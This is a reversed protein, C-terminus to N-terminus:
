PRPLGLGREAIINRQIESTGAAITYPVSRLYTHPIEGGLRAGPGLRQGVLGALNVAFRYVDQMVESGFVKSMSAEHNPILNASQMWTVRYSLWRAIEASIQLDAFRNRNRAEGFCEPIEEMAWAGIRKLGRRVTAGMGVGSREFDLLTTAIYWGRNEEGLMQDAPVRVDEFYVENFNHNGAMDILPRVEIGPTKMDVLFYSIGRHKPAEPNTRTLVHIWDAHHARSTWIKQGNIMFDDGDRVARTQLSALDSGSGPESFGQAWYVEAKAIPPLFEKKQAESGHVMLFPGVMGSGQVDMPGGALSAEERYIMQQMHTSGRGGYETPWAMMLWGHEALTPEFARSVTHAEEETADDPPPTWERAIFDHVESRSARDEDSFGFDLQAAWDHAPLARSARGCRSSYGVTRERSDVACAATDHLHQITGRPVASAERGM